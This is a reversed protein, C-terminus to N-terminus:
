TAEKRTVPLVVSVGRQKAEETIQRVLTEYAKEEQSRRPTLYPLYDLCRITQKSPIM